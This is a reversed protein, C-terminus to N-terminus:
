PPVCVGEGIRWTSSAWQGRGGDSSIKVMVEVLGCRAVVGGNVEDNVINELMLRSLEELTVNSVPLILCDGSPLTQTTDAHTIHVHKGDERVKVHPSRAPILYMEDWDDCLRRVLNKFLAYDALMGESSVPGQMRPM